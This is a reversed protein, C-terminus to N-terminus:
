SQTALPTTDILHALQEYGQAISLCAAVQNPNDPMEAAARERWAEARQRYVAADWVEPM